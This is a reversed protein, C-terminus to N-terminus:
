GGIIMGVAYAVVACAGGVLITEFVSRVLAERSVLWRLLGLLLLAIATAAVSMGFASTQPMGVLYPLLPICGFFLFSVFTYLGSLAPHQDDPHPISFEYRMMFDALLEPYNALEDALREADKESLGKLQLIAIVEEREAEPEHKILHLESKRLSRYVDKESRDSLFEGLGMSTADAFLNAFGFLLVAIVGVEATGDASAGAFGAVVAFTTVIGDNGGYIIQRLNEQFGGVGHAIRRHQKIDM